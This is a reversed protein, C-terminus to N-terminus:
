PELSRVGFLKLVTWLSSKRERFREKWRQGWRQRGRQREREKAKTQVGVDVVMVTSCVLGNQEQVVAKARTREKAREKTRWETLKWPFQM